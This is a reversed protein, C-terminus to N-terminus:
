QDERREAADEDSLEERKAGIWARRARVADASMKKLWLLVAYEFTLTLLFFIVKDKVSSFDSGFISIVSMVPPLVYYLFAAKETMKCDREEYDLFEEMTYSGGRRERRKKKQLYKKEMTGSITAAINDPMLESMKVRERKIHRGRLIHYLILLPLGAAIVVWSPIRFFETETMLMAALLILFTSSATVYQVAKLVSISVTKRRFMVRRIVAGVAATVIGAAVAGIILGSINIESYTSWVNSITDEDQGILLLLIDVASFFVLMFVIRRIDDVVSLVRNKIGLDACFTRCFRPIDGGTIKEVSRGTTQATLFVDLLMSLREENSAEDFNQTRVYMEIAEFASLYEGSLRDKYFVYSDKM